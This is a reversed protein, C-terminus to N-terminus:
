FAVTLSLHGRGSTASTRTSSFPWGYDCHISVHEALTCRLGVGSSQLEQEATAQNQRRNNRIYAYDYFLVGELGGIRWRSNEQGIGSRLLLGIFELSAEFGTDTLFEDQEYGRVSAIGGTSKQESSLLRDNTHQGDVRVSMALRGNGLSQLRHLRARIISYDPDVGETRFDSAPSSDGLGRWNRVLALTASNRGNFRDLDRSEYQFTLDFPAVDLESRLIEIGSAFTRDIASRWVRGLTVSMHRRRNDSCNITWQFGFFEEEGLIDFINVHRIETDAQGGFLGLTLPEGLILPVYYGASWANYDRPQASTTYSITLRDFRKTLNTHEMALSHRARGTHESGYNGARLRGHVPMSEEPTFLIDAIQEDTRSDSHVKVGTHLLLDGRLNMRYIKDYLHPYYFVDETKLQLDGLIQKETFYRGKFGHDPALRITGIKGLAVRFRLIGDDGVDYDPLLYALLFNQAILEDMTYRIAIQRLAERTLQQGICDRRLREVVLLNPAVVSRVKKFISVEDPSGVIEINTISVTQDSDPPLLELIAPPHSPRPPSLDAGDTRGPPLPHPSHGRTETEIRRTENQAYAVSFSLFIAVALTLRSCGASRHPHEM